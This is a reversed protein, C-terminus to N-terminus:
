LIEASFSRRNPKEPNRVSGLFGDALAPTALNGLSLFTCIPIVNHAKM